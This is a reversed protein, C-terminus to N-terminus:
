FSRFKNLLTTLIQRTEPDLQPSDGGAIVSNVSSIPQKIPFVVMKLYNLIGTLQDMGRLNGARGSAVGILLVKKLEFTSSQWKISLLDLFLKLIGPFSGNYEPAVIIWKQAPIFVSQQIEDVEPDRKGSDYMGSNFWSPNTNELSYRVHAVNMNDMIASIADAVKSTQSSARNTATILLYPSEEINPQM